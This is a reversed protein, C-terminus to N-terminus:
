GREWYADRELSALRLSESNPGDYSVLVGLVPPSADIAFHYRRQAGSNRETVILERCEFSGAPVEVRTTSGVELAFSHVELPDTRADRWTDILGLDFRTGPALDAPLGRLVFPLADVSFPLDCGPLRQEGVGGGPFYTSEFWRLDRGDRWLQKFSAGCDEQSAFTQKFPRLGDRELFVATSFDYDYNETPIRESRHHKFAEMGKAGSSKTSTAPDMRQANTYLTATYDRDVGYISRVAAYRAVEARGDYWIPDDFVGSDRVDFPLALTAQEFGPPRTASSGSKPDVACGSLAGLVLALWAAAGCLAPRPRPLRLANM